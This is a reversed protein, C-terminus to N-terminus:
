PLLPQFTAYGEVSRFRYGRRGSIAETLASLVADVAEQTADTRTCIAKAEELATLYAAYSSPTYESQAYAPSKAIANQLATSDAAQHIVSADPISPASSPATYGPYLRYFDRLSQYDSYTLGSSDADRNWM